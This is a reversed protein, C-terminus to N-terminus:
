GTLDAFLAAFRPDREFGVGPADGPRAYGDSVELGPPFTGLPAAEHGGLGLGAAVHFALLHGAHPLCQRRPWGHAEVIDLIRLYEVIGYSLSIDMQLLDRDPRLGGYRLLNLTDAASFLNEGTALPLPAAEALASLAEFDLPDVPEEIWALDRGAVESIFTSAESRSLAGNCDVALTGGAGLNDLAADIRRLDERVPAGGAKIKVTRFGLDVCARVEGALRALDNGEHYHGASAYVPVRDEGVGDGFREALLRWLPKDELKAALDWCAADILGVAGSREGHGGPKEDRMAIEWIRFPDPGREGAYDEPDAALVRPVFRERLLGGHGYRGVSDFALGIAPKGGRSEDSIMALASATMGRFGISANRVGSSLAVTKERIAVIRM